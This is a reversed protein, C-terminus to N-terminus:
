SRQQEGLVFSIEVWQQVFYVSFFGIVFPTPPAGSHVVWFLGGGVLVLRVGFVVGMVKLAANLSVRVARRKLVLAVAGSGVALAVGVMAALRAANEGPLAYAAVLGVVGLGATLGLYTSLRQKSAGGESM